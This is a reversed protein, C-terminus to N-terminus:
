QVLRPRHSPKPTTQPTDSSEDLPPNSSSSGTGPSGHRTKFLSGFIALALVLFLIGILLDTKVLSTEVRHAFDTLSQQLQGISASNFVRHELKKFVFDAIFKIAVLIIGAETLIIGIRRLGWRKRPAIYIIGLSSIVALGGLIWPLKTALRYAQPLHSLKQYYPQDQGSAAKPNLTSATIVPDSLFDSSTAIQRTTQAGLAEPTTNPPRCTASLPDIVQTQMEVLQAVTCVPLGSSYSRVYQGVQLAFSLKASTLDITFNPTGSQGDLWAYNSDLFTNVSQELLQPPFASQAAQQVASDSLSVSGSQEKDGASQKAETIINALFHDYLRSQSLWSKVKYPHSLDRDVSAALAGGVLAILLLVSLLHVFGKRLWSM